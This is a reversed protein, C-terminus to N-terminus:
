NEIAIKIFEFRNGTELVFILKNKYFICVESIFFTLWIPIRINKLIKENQFKVLYIKSVKNRLFQRWRKNVNLLEIPKDGVSLYALAKKIPYLEKYEDLDRHLKMKKTQNKPTGGEFNKRLDSFRKNEQKELLKIM